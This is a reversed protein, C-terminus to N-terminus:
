SFSPISFFRYEVAQEGEGTQFPRGCRDTCKKTAPSLKARVGLRGMKELAAFFKDLFLDNNNAFSSTFVSFDPHSPNLPPFALALDTDLHDIGSSFDRFWSPFIGQPDDFPVVNVAFSNANNEVVTNVL